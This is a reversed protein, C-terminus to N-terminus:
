RLDIVLIEVQELCVDGLCALDDRATNRARLRIVLTLQCRRDLPSTVECQQRIGVPVLAPPRTGTCARATHSTALGCFATIPSATVNSSGAGCSVLPTMMTSSTRDCPVRSATMSADIAAAANIATDSTKPTEDADNIVNIAPVQNGTSKSANSSTLVRDILNVICTDTM